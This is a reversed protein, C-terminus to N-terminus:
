LTIEEKFNKVLKARYWCEDRNAKLNGAFLNSYSILKNVQETYRWDSYDSNEDYNKTKDVRTKTDTYFQGGFYMLKFGLAWARYMLDKEDHGYSDGFELNYGGLIDVFENKYFGLRGRTMRRGKAFIAKEPQQNALMNLYSAFGINTFNDADVNNVIDGQAVMFAINRSISMSFYKPEETRYFNLVGKNIYEMLNDKVWNGLGDSSNYDLLVFEVNPYDKNDEINKPLTKSLDELRNMCTTCLSIKYNKIIENKVKGDWCLNFAKTRNEKWYAKELRENITKLWNRNIIGM